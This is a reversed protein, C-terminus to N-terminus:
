ANPEPHNPSPLLTQTKRAGGWRLSPDLSETHLLPAPDWGESPRRHPPTRNDPFTM